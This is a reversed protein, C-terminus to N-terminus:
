RRETADHVDIVGCGYPALHEGVVGQLVIKSAACM